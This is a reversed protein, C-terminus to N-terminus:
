CGAVAQDAPYGSPPGRLLHGKGVTRVFPVLYHGDAPAFDREGWFVEFVCVDPLEPVATVLFCASCVTVEYRHDHLHHEGKEAAACHPRAHHHAAHLWGHATQSCWSLLFVGGLVLAHLRM